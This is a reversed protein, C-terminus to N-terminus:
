VHARGIEANQLSSIILYLFIAGFILLVTGEIAVGIAPDPVYNIMGRNEAEALGFSALISIITFGMAPRWGLLLGAMLIVVFYSTFATARIGSGTLAIMTSALWITTIHLYGAFRIQGAKMLFWVIALIIIIVMLIINDIGFPEAGTAIRVIIFLVLIPINSLVIANIFRAVRTKEEDEPFVPPTFFRQLYKLKSM